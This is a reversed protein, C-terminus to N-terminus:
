RELISGLIVHGVCTWFHGDSLTYWDLWAAHKQIPKIVDRTVLFTLVRGGRFSEIWVIAGKEVLREPTSGTFLLLYHPNGTGQVTWFDGFETPVEPQCIREDAELMDTHSKTWKHAELMDLMAQQTEANYLSAVITQVDIPGVSQLHTSCHTQRTFKDDGGLSNASSRKVSKRACDTLKKMTVKGPKGESGREADGRARKNPPEM